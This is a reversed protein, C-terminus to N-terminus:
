PINRDQPDFHLVVAMHRVTYPSGSSKHCHTSFFALNPRNPCNEDSYNELQCESLRKKWEALIKEAKPQFVYILIGGQNADQTGCSYRTCLQNFGKKLWAYYKRHIKAEGLWVYPKHPHRVVLDCHGGYKEDHTAQYGKACLFLKLDQTLRDEDDKKRVARDEQMKRICEDICQYLVNVFDEYTQVLVFDAFQALDPRLPRYQQFDALSLSELSNM